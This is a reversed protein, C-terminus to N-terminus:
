YNVKVSLSFTRARPYMYNDVGGALEPDQGKYGSIVFANQINAAVHLNFQSGSVHDFTRGLSIYDMRFFGVNQVYYDSYAYPNNFHSDNVSRSINRFFGPANYVNLYASEANVNNYVYNGLQLRGSFSLDWEHHRLSSSLGMM